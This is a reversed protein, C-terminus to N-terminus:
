GFARKFAALSSRSSNVLWNEEKDFNFWVVGVISPETELWASFQTIWKAKSGGTESSSTECIWMSKDTFARIKALSPAFVQEPTQWVNGSTAGWNFGDLGVYDVYDDGPYVSAM